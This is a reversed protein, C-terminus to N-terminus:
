TIYVMTEKGQLSLYFLLKRPHILSIITTFYKALLGTCLLSEIYPLIIIITFKRGPSMYVFTAFYGTLLKHFHLTSPYCLATPKLSNGASNQADVLMGWPSLPPHPTHHLSLPHCWWWGAVWAKMEVLFAGTHDPTHTHAHAHTHRLIPREQWM